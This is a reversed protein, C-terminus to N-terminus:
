YKLSKKESSERRQNKMCERNSEYRPKTTAVEYCSGEEELFRSVAKAKPGPANDQIFIPTEVRMKRLHPLAQQRLLEKYVSANINGLFRAIPGVGM